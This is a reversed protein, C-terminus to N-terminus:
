ALDGSVSAAEVFAALLAKAQPHRAVDAVDLTATKGRRLEGTDPDRYLRSVQLKGAKRFFSLQVRETRVEEPTEHEWYRDAM